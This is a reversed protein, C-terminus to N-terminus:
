RAGKYHLKKQRKPKGSPWYDEEPHRHNHQSTAQDPIAHSTVRTTISERPTKPRSRPKSGFLNKFFNLM